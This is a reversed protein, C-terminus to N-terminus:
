EYSRKEGETQVKYGKEFCAKGEHAVVDRDVVLHIRARDTDNVVRHWLWHAVQFPVGATQEQEEGDIIFSGAPQIPIQWRELWPSADRHLPIDGGPEIHSLWANAVPAFDDLVWGFAEEIRQKNRRYGHHFSDHQTRDSPKCLDLSEASEFLRDIPYTTM